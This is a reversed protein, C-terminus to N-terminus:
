YLVASDIELEACNCTSKPIDAVGRGPISIEKKQFFCNPTAVHPLSQFTGTRAM